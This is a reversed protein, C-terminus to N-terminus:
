CHKLFYKRSLSYKAFWLITAQIAKQKSMHTITQTAMWIGNKIKLNHHCFYRSLKHHPGESIYQLSGDTRQEWRHSILWHVHHSRSLHKKIQENVETKAREAAWECSEEWCPTYKTPHLIDSLEVWDAGLPIEQFQCIQKITEEAEAM